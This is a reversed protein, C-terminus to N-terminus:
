YKSWQYAIRPTGDAVYITGCKLFGNRLILKQMILNDNHTDIRINDSISKCYDVGCKFIGKVKGDSALRHITVYEEDNIWQGNEIHQYTPEEGVFLCFVGHPVDNDLILYCVENNIDNKILDSTPYSYGWQNPNGSAIMFDQAASYIDMITDLDKPKAKRINM